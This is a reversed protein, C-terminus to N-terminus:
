PREDIIAFPIFDEKAAHGRADHDNGARQGRRIALVREGTGHDDLAHIRLCPGFGRQVIQQAIGIFSSSAGEADRRCSNLLRVKAGIAARPTALQALSDSLGAPSLRAACGSYLAVKKLAASHANTSAAQSRNIGASLIPGLAPSAPTGSNM